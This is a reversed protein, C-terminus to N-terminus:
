IRTTTNAKALALAELSSPLNCVSCSRRLKDYRDRADNLDGNRLMHNIDALADRLSEETRSREDAFSFEKGELLTQVSPLELNALLQDQKTRGEFQPPLEPKILVSSRDIADSTTSGGPGLEITLSSALPPTLIDPVPKPQLSIVQSMGLLVGGCITISLAASALSNIPFLHLWNSITRNTRPAREISAALIAADLEASNEIKESSALLNKLTDLQQETM